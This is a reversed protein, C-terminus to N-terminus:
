RVEVEARCASTGGHGDRVVLWLPYFGPRRPVRWVNDRLPAQTQEEEFVGGTTFWSYYSDEHRDVVDGRADIIRYDEQWAADDPDPTLVVHTGADLVPVEGDEPVCTFPEDTGRASVWHEDEGATIAFRPEPPNTGRPEGTFILVRKFSRVLEESGTRVTLGITVPLGSTEVVFRLLDPPLQDGYTAALVELDEYVLSTLLGSIIGTDGRRELDFVGEAGEVCGETPPEEGYQLNSQGGLAEFRSCATWSLRLPREEPDVVMATLEIDEGPPAIPPSAVVALVRPTKVISPPDLDGACGILALLTTWTM